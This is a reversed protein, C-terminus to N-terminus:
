QGMQRKLFNAFDQEPGASTPETGRAGQGVDGRPKAKGLDALLEDADASLEEETTGVLRKAQTPTLGKELAVRLRAAETQATQTDQEAKAAREELRQQETKQQEQLADFQQAKESNGKARAEWKRAEAKWDTDDAKPEVTPDPPEPKDPQAQAPATPTETM